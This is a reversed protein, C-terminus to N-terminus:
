GAAASVSTCDCKSMDEEGDEGVARVSLTVLLWPGSMQESFLRWAM